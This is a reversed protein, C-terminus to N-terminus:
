AGICPSISVLRASSFWIAASTNLAKIISVAAASYPAGLFSGAHDSVLKISSDAFQTRHPIEWARNFPLSTRHRSTASKPSSLVSQRHGNVPTFCVEGNRVGFDSFSEVSIDAVALHRALPAVEPNSRLPFPRGFNPCNVRREDPRLLHPCRKLTDSGTRRQGHFRM